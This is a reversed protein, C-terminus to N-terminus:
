KKIRIPSNVESKVPRGKYNALCWNTTLDQNKRLEELLSISKLPERITMSEPDVRGKEDVTMTLM